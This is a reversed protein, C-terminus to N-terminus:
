CAPGGSAELKYQYVATAHSQVTQADAYLKVLELSTEVNMAGDAGTAGTVSLSLTATRLDALDAPFSPGYPEETPSDALVRDMAQCWHQLAAARDSNRRQYNISGIVFAGTAVLALGVVLAV